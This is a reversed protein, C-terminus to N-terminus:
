VDLCIAGDPSQYLLIDQNSSRLGSARSDDAIKNKGDGSIVRLMISYKGGDGSVRFVDKGDLGYVSVEQTEDPNFTRDFLAAGNPADGESAKDNMQVRLQGTPLRNIEFVEAKNSSVAEPGPCGGTPVFANQGPLQQEIHKELRRVAKLGAPGSNAWDKNSPVFLIRGNPLIKVLSILADARYKETQALASDAKGALGTNGIIDGLHVVTFPGAQRELAQRLLKLYNAPSEDQATNGLLYVTHAPM